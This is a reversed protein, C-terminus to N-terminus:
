LELINTYIGLAFKNISMCITVDDVIYTVLDRRLDIKLFEFDPLNMSRIRSHLIISEIQGLRMTVRVVVTGHLFYEHYMFGNICNYIVNAFKTEGVYTTEIKYHGKEKHVQRFPSRVHFGLNSDAGLLMDDIVNNRITDFNIANMLQQRAHKIRREFYSVLASEVASFRTGHDNNDNIRRRVRREQIDSASRKMVPYYDTFISRIWIKQIRPNKQIKSNKM